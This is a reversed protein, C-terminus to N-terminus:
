GELEKKGVLFRGKRKGPLRRKIRMWGRTSRTKRAGMFRAEGDM